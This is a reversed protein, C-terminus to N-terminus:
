YFDLDFSVFGVSAVEKDARFPVVTEAVDGIVLKASTLRAELKPIDMKFQGAQWAYPLDRYNLLRPLVEGVDFGYIDTQVGLASSM